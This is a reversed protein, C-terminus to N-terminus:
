LKIYLSATFCSGTCEEFARSSTSQSHSFPDPMRWFEGKDDHDTEKLLKQHPSYEGCFVTMFYNGSDSLKWCAGAGVRMHSDAAILMRGADELRSIGSGLWQPYCTEVDDQFSNNLESRVAFWKM